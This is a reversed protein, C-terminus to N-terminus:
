GAEYLNKLYDMLEHETMSMEVEFLVYNHPLKPMDLRAPNLLQFLITLMCFHSSEHFSVSFLCFLANAKLNCFPQALSLRYHFCNLESHNQAKASVSEM